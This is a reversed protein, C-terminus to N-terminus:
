SNDSPMDEKSNNELDIYFQKYEEVQKDLDIDIHRLSRHMSTLIIGSMDDAHYIGLENFYKVLVPKDVISRSWLKWENRLTRGITNHYMTTFDSESMAKLDEISEINENILFEIAEQLDSPTYPKELM